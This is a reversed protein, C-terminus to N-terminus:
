LERKTDNGKEEYVHLKVMTKKSILDMIKDKANRRRAYRFLKNEDIVYKEFAGEFIRPLENDGFSSAILPEAVIDVLLKEICTSWKPNLGAPSESIRRCLVITDETKYRHYDDASPHLLINLSYNSRLSDFVYDMVDADTYLFITNRGIQHNMFENLQVTEFISFDLNPHKDKLISAVTESQSSYSYEYNKISNDAARYANRGIRQIRADRILEQFYALFSPESKTYGSLRFSSLLEKKSFVMDPKVFENFFNEETKM